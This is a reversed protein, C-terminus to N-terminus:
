ILLAGTSSASISPVPLLSGTPSGATIIGPASTLTHSPEPIPENVIIITTSSPAASSCIADGVAGYLQDFICYVFYTCVVTNTVVGVLLEAVADGVAPVAAAVKLAAAEFAALLADETIPNGEGLQGQPALVM